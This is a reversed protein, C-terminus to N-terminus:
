LQVSILDLYVPYPCISIHYVCITLKTPNIVAVSNLRNAAEGALVLKVNLDNSKPLPPAVLLLLEYLKFPVVPVWVPALPVFPTVIMLEPRLTVCFALTGGDAVTVLGVPEYLLSLITILVAPLGESVLYAM